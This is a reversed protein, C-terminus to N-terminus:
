FKYKGVKTSTGHFKFQATKLHLTTSLIPSTSRQHQSHKSKLLQLFQCVDYIMIKKNMM